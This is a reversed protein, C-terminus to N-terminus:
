GQLLLRNMCFRDPNADVKKRGHSVELASPVDPCGMKKDGTENPGLLAAVPVTMVTRGSEDTVVFERQAWPRLDGYAHPFRVIDDVTARLEQYAASQRCTMATPTPSSPRAMESISITAAWM